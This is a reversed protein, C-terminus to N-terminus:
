GKKAGAALALLAKRDTKGMDNRPISRVRLYRILKEAEPTLRFATRLGDRVEQMELPKEAVLVILLGEPAEAGTMGLIAVDSIMTNKRLQAEIRNFAIKNGSFNFVEDDRGSIYLKGDKFYGIDPLRYSPASDAVLRGDVYSGSLTSADNLFMLEGPENADESKCTLKVGPQLEGVYGPVYDASTIRGMAIGGTESSGYVVCTEADFFSEIRTVLSKSFLSGTLRIHKVSPCRISHQEMGTMFIELAAPTTLLNSVCLTNILRLSLAPKAVSRVLCARRELIRYATVFGFATANGITSMVREGPSFFLEQASEGRRRHAKYTKAVFKPRGTTGSTTAIYYPEDEGREAFERLVRKEREGRLRNLDITLDAPTAADIPNPSGIVFDIGANKRAAGPNNSLVPVLGYHLAAITALLRENQDKINLFTRALRPVDQEALQNSVLAVTTLVDLYTISKTRSCIAPAFANEAANEAISKIIQQM